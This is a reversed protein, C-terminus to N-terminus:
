RYAEADRLIRAADGRAQPVISNAQAQAENIFRSRDQQAATVDRFAAIVTPPPDM